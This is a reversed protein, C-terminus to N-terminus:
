GLKGQGFINSKLLSKCGRGTRDHFVGLGTGQLTLSVTHQPSSRKLIEHLETSMDILNNKPPVLQVSADLVAVVRVVPRGAGAGGQEQVGEGVGAGHLVLVEADAGRLEPVIGVIDAVVDEQGVEYDHGEKGEKDEGDDIAHEVFSYGVGRGGVLPGGVALLPVLADGHDQHPDHEDECETVHESNDNIKILYM